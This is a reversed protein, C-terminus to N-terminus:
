DARLAIFSDGHDEVTADEVLAVAPREEIRQGSHRPRSRKIAVIERLSALACLIGRIGTRSPSKADKRSVLGPESPGIEEM